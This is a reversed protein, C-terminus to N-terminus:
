IVAKLNFYQQTPQSETKIKKGDFNKDFNWSLKWKLFRVNKLM